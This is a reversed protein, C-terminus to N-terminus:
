DGAHAPGPCAFRVRRGDDRGAMRDSVRLADGNMRWDYIVSFALVRPVYERTERYSITEIWLDPDFDPRQERWRTTPTPGANYAAIAQPLSSWRDLMERLYASGIAINRAPDYLSTAGEWPIGARRATAEGTAPLVQMLGLANAPSRADPDFLSEARIEAAVWAPDIRQRAAERRIAEMHHLPFRLHYLRLEEANGRALSFVARDFWGVSQAQAVAIRRGADDFRRLADNWEAVAWAKRGAAHLAFARRLAPDAAVEAELAPQPAPQWPCLPYPLDLRDAALFGHFEPHRAAERYLAEAGPRGALELLRAEFYRWQAKHRLDAPFRELAALAAPWDRRAMAERVALPHLRDDFASTPVAALRRAGEPEYSAASQLAIEYRVRGLAEADLQLPGAFRPLAAEAAAPSKKAMAVLAATAAHRSRADKPWDLAADGLTGGLADAYQSALLAEHGPLGIAAERLVAPRGAAIALDIRRWRLADDLGGHQLWTATPATCEAPLADGSLWLRRMDQMWGADPAAGASRASLELCRLAPLEIGAQWSRRFAPWDGRKGIAALWENRFRRGVADDGHAKLFAEARAPTLEAISQRLRAYEVWAAAPHNSLGPFRAPDFNGLEAAALAERLLSDAHSVPKTEVAAAVPTATGTSPAAAPPQAGSEGAGCGALALVILTSPRWHM